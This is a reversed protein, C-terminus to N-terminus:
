IFDFLRKLLFIKIYFYGLIDWSVTGKRLLVNISFHKDMAADPWDETLQVIPCCVQCAVERVVAFFWSKELQGINIHLHIM